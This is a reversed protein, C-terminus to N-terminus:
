NFKIEENTLTILNSASQVMEGYRETLSKLL